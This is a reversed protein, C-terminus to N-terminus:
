MKRQSPIFNTGPYRSAFEGTMAICCIVPATGAAAATFVPGTTDGDVAAGTTDASAVPLRKEGAADCPGPPDPDAVTLM